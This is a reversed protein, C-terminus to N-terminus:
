SSVFHHTTEWLVLCRETKASNEEQETVRLSKWQHVSLRSRKAEGTSCRILLSVQTHRFPLIKKTDHHWDFDQIGHATHIDSTTRWPELGCSTWLVNQNPCNCEIMSFLQILTELIGIFSTAQLCIKVNTSPLIIFFAGIWWNRLACISSHWTPLCVPVEGVITINVRWVLKDM